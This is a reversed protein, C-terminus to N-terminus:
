AFRISQALVTFVILTEGMVSVSKGQHAHMREVFAIKVSPFRLMDFTMAM